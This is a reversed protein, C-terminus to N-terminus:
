SGVISRHRNGLHHTPGYTRGYTGLVQRPGGQPSFEGCRWKLSPGVTSKNIANPTPNPPPLSSLSLRSLSLSVLPKSQSIFPSPPCSAILPTGKCDSGEVQTM